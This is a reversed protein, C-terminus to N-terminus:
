KGGGKEDAPWALPSGLSKKDLSREKLKRLSGDENPHISDPDATLQMSVGGVSSPAPREHMLLSSRLDGITTHLVPSYDSGPRKGPYEKVLTKHSSPQSMLAIHSGGWSDNLGQPDIYLLKVRNDHDKVQRATGHNAAMGAWAAADGGTNVLTVNGKLIM